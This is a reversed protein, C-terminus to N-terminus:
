IRPPVPNSQTTLPRPGDNRAILRLNITTQQSYDYDLNAVEYFKQKSQGSLGTGGALGKSIPQGANGPGSQPYTEQYGAASMTAGRYASMSPIASTLEEREKEPKFTVSVLGLDSSGEDLAAQRAEVTGVQYFTFKGDDHAPRELTITQRPGIRWTGVHQGDITVEADCRNYRSNRLSLKYTQNHQMEVYGSAKENGGVIRVSFDNLYM